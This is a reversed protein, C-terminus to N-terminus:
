SLFGSGSSSSRPISGPPPEMFRVTNPLFRGGLLNAGAFVYKLHALVFSATLAATGLRVFLPRDVSYLCTAVGGIECLAATATVANSLPVFRRACAAAYDIAVQFVLALTLYAVVIVTYLRPNTIFNLWAVVGLLTICVAVLADNAILSVAPCRRRRILHRFALHARRGVFGMCVMSVACGLKILARCQGDVFLQGPTPFSLRFHAGSVLFYFIAAIVGSPAGLFAFWFVVPPYSLSRTLAQLFGSNM